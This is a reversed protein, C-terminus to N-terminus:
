PTRGGRSPRGSSATSSPRRAQPRPSPAQSTSGSPAERGRCRPTCGWPGLAHRGRRSPTASSPWPPRRPSPGGGVGQVARSAILWGATTALGGALSGLSFVALGVAFMRRRGFVDGLRGGLLLLGGFALTYGSIVWELNAQSFHLSRQISPLAVTIITADLVVMLQAASIVILAAALRRSQGADSAMPALSGGPDIRDATLATHPLCPLVPCEDRSGVRADSSAGDAVHPAGGAGDAVHPAGDAAEIGTRQSTM